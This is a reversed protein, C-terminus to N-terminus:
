CVALAFQENTNSHPGYFNQTVPGRNQTSNSNNQTSINVFDKKIGGGNVALQKLHQLSKVPPATLAVSNASTALQSDTMTSSGHVPVQAAKDIKTSIPIEPSFGLKEMVWNVVSGLKKLWSLVPDFVAILAKGWWTDGFSEKFSDWLKTILPMFAILAAIGLVIGGVVVAIPNALFAANFMLQATRWAQTFFAATKTVGTWLSIIKSWGMMVNACLRTVIPLAGLIGIFGAVVVGAYSIWKAAAPYAEAWEIIEEIVNAISNFLHDIAPALLSGLIIQLANAGQVMRQFPDVRQMATNKAQAMGTVGSLKTIAASLNGTDKMLIKIVEAGDDSGFAKKLVDTEALSLTEGFKSKLKDMIQVMPLLKGESNTFKLGLKEQASGIGDLFAKYKKGSDTGPLTKQLTGLVALQESVKVGASQGAVGVVSFASSMKKTSTRFMNVAALTKGTVQEAFKIKGIAEADKEFVSLMTGMYTNVATADTKTSISLVQSANTINALESGKLGSISSQIQYASLVFSKASEGYKVSNILSKKALNDMAADQVNLSKVDGMASNFEMAPQVLAKISQSVKGYGVDRFASKAKATVSDLSKQVNELKTLARGTLVEVSFTLKELKSM